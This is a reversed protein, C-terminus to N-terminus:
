LGMMMKLEESPKWAPEFVLEVKAKGAKLSTLKKKVDEIMADGYPCLPTTLTMKVYVEKERVQVDYVLGLTIIDMGLEPDVVSKLVHEVDEKSIKSNKSM